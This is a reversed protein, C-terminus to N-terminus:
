LGLSRCVNIHFSVHLFVSFHMGSLYTNASALQVEAAKYQLVNAFVNDQQGSWICWAQALLIVLVNEFYLLALFGGDHWTIGNVSWYGSLSPNRSDSDSKNSLFQIWRQQVLHQRTLQQMATSLCFLFLLPTLSLRSHSFSLILSTGALFSHVSHERERERERERTPALTNTLPEPVLEAGGQQGCGWCRHRNLKAELEICAAM